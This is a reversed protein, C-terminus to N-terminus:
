LRTEASTVSELARLSNVVWDADVRDVSFSLRVRDEGESKVDLLDVEPDLELLRKRVEWMATSPTVVVEVTVARRLATLIPELFRLGVLILIALLTALVAWLLHGTGAAMGVAASAWLGAATTLGKVLPGSRFIAGAGLFGIGSVIQAAVRSTDAEDFAEMSVVTFVAAGLGVMAYTRLGAAKGSAERELGILAALGMGVAVRVLFDVLEM